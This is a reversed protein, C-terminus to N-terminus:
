FQVFVDLLIFESSKVNIVAKTGLKVLTETPLLRYVLSFETAKTRSRVIGVSTTISLLFLRYSDSIILM